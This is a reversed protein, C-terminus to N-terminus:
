HKGNGNLSRPVAALFDPTITVEQATQPTEYIGQQPIIAVTDIVRGAAKQAKTEQAKSIIGMVANYGAEDIADSLPDLAAAQQAHMQGIIEVCRIAVYRSLGQASLVAALAFLLGGLWTMLQLLTSETVISILGNFWTGEIDQIVSRMSGVLALALISFTVLNLLKKYRAAPSQYQTKWAEGIGLTYLMNTAWIRLSWKPAREEHYGAKHEIHHIQFELVLNLLVLAGAAFSALAYDAEFLAIGHVVRQHEVVLLLVLVLPVGLSVILTQSFTLLTEGVSLVFQLLRPYFANFRSAMDPAAAEGQLAQLRAREAAQTDSIRKRDNATLIIGQEAALAEAAKFTKNALTM